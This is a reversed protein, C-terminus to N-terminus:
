AAAPARRRARRRSRLWDDIADHLTTAAGTTLLARGRLTVRTATSAGTAARRSTSQRRPAVRRADAPDLGEVEVEWELWLPVWPQAWTTVGVLDPDAGKYLSFSRLEDAVLTQQERM